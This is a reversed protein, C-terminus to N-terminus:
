SEIMVATHLKTVVMPSFRAKLVAMLPGSLMGGFRLETLCLRGKSANMIRFDHCSGLFLGGAMANGNFVCLTPLEFNMLRDMLM